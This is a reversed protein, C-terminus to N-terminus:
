VVVFDTYDLDTPHITAGILAVQVAATAGSGDADYYLAGTTQNYIILDSSDFASYGTYPTGIGTAGTTVKFDNASLTGLTSLGAM